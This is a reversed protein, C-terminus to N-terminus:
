SWLRDLVLLVLKILIRLNSLAYNLFAGLATNSRSGIELFNPNGM